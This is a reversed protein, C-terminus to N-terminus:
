LWLVDAREDSAPFDCSKSRSSRTSRSSRIRSIASIVCSSTIRLSRSSQTGWRISNRRFSASKTAVMKIQRPRGSPWGQPPRPFRSAKTRRSTRRHRNVASCHGLRCALDDSLRSDNEIQADHNEKAIMLTTTTMREIMRSSATARDEIAARLCVPEARIGRLVTFRRRRADQLDGSGRGSQPERGARMPRRSNRDQGPARPRFRWIRKAHTPKMLVIDPHMQDEADHFKLFLAGRFLIPKHILPKRTGPDSISIVAYPERVVVGREIEDRGVVVFQM